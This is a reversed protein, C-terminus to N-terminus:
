VVLLFPKLPIVQLKKVQINKQIGILFNVRLKRKYLGKRKMLRSIFIIIFHAFFMIQMKSRVKKQKLIKPSLEENVNDELAAAKLADLFGAIPSFKQGTRQDPDRDQPKIYDPIPRPVFLRNIPPQLLPCAYERIERPPM